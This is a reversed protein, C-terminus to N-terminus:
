EFKLCNFINEMHEIAENVEDPSIDKFPEYDAKKRLASLKVLDSKVKKEGFNYLANRVQKHHFSKKMSKM